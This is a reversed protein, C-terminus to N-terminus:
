SLAHGVAEALEVSAAADDAYGYELVGVRDRGRGPRPRHSARRRLTDGSQFVVASPRATSRSRHCRRAESAAAAPVQQAYDAIYISAARAGAAAAALSAIDDLRDVPLAQAAEVFAHVAEAIALPRTDTEDSTTVPRMTQTTWRELRFTSAM